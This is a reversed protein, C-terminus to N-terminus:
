LAQLRSMFLLVLLLSGLGLRYIIFLYTTHTKLYGLLFAITAYGVIGSVVTATLLNVLDAQSALLEHREKYLEFVGAAFVAPLSLLFSFRAATPRTMGLFLGGTITVGSRSSGPILALAQALGVGLADGWSLDALQKQPRQQQQRRAVLWEAYMLVLGLIMLSASIVYLSRLSTNIEKKFLWGFVVVPVTGLVIMWAMKADLTACLKGTRLGTWTAALLRVIDQRFYVLAALLTGCQIVATFAAGPDEWGLLAPVIRIHATSSVPLFETLGQILGILLAELFTM